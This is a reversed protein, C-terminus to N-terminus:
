LDGFNNLKLSKAGKYTFYRHWFDNRVKKYKSIRPFVFLDIQVNQMNRNVREKAGNQEFTQWDEDRYFSLNDSHQMLDSFIVMRKGKNSDTFGASSSIMEEIAELIPSTKAPKSILLNDIVRFVPKTFQSQYRQEIRRPNEYFNNAEDGSHPKCKQFSISGNNSVEPTVLAVSIMTNVPTNAILTELKSRMKRIQIEKLPDTLDLLITLYSSPTGNICLTVPDPKPKDQEYIMRKLTIVVIIGLIILIFVAIFNNRWANNQSAYKISRRNKKM